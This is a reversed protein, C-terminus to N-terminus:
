VSYIIDQAFHSHSRGSYQAQWSSIARHLAIVNQFGDPVRRQHPQVADVLTQSRLNIHLRVEHVRASRHLVADGDGHNIVRLFPSSLGPPVIM